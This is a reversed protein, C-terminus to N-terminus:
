EDENPFSAETALIRAAEIRAKLPATTDKVVSVLFEIADLAARHVFLVETKKDWKDGKIPTLTM